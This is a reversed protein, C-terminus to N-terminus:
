HHGLATLHNDFGNQSKCIKSCRYWQLGHADWGHWHSSHENSCGGYCQERTSHHVESEKASSGRATSVRNGGVAYNSKIRCTPVLRRVTDNYSTAVNEKQEGTVLHMAIITSLTKRSSYKLVAFANYGMPMGATNTCRNRAPFSETANGM